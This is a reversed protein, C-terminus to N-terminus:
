FLKLEVLRKMVTNHDAGRALEATVVQAIQRDKQSAPWLPQDPLEQGDWSIGNKHQHACRYWDTEQGESTRKAVVIQGAQYLCTPCVIHKANEGGAM